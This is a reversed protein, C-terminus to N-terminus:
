YIYVDAIDGYKEPTFRDIIDDNEDVFNLLSLNNEAIKCAEEESEAEITGLLRGGKIYGTTKGWLCVCVELEKKM